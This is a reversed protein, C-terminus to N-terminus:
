KKDPPSATNTTDDTTPAAATQSPDFFSSSAMMTSGALSATSASLTESMRFTGGDAKAYGMYNTASFGLGISEAMTDLDASLYVFTWNGEETLETIMNRIRAKTYTQSSNEYGDTVIVMIVRDRLGVQGDISRISKGIADYLATGGNPRYNLTNAFKTLSAIRQNEIVTQAFTNFKTVSLRYDNGDKRLEDVYQQLAGTTDDAVNYMSGSEDLVINVFVRGKKSGPLAQGCETCFKGM